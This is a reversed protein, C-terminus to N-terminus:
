LVDSEENAYAIEIRPDASQNLHAAQVPQRLDPRWKGFVVSVPVLLMWVMVEIVTLWLFAARTADATEFQPQVWYLMPTLTHEGLRDRVADELLAVASSFVRSATLTISVHVTSVNGADRLYEEWNGDGILWLPGITNSSHTVFPMIRSSPVIQYQPFVSISGPAFTFDVNQVNPENTVALPSQLMGTLVCSTIFISIALASVVSFWVHASVAFWSGCLQRNDGAIMISHCICSGCCCNGYIGFIVWTFLGAYALLTLLLLAFVSPAPPPHIVDHYVVARLIVCTTLYALLILAWM